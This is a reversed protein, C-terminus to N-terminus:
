SLPQGVRSAVMLALFVTWALWAISLAILPTKPLPPADGVPVTPDDWIEPPGQEVEQSEEYGEASNQNGHVAADPM